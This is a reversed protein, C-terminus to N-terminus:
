RSPMRSTRGFNLRLVAPHADTMCSVVRVHQVSVTVLLGSLRIQHYAILIDNYNLTISTNHRTVFRGVNCLMDFISQSCLSLWAFVGEKSTSALM